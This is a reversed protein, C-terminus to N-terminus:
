KAIQFPYSNEKLPVLYISQTDNRLICRFGRGKVWFDFEVIISGPGLTYTTLAGNNINFSYPSNGYADSAVYGNLSAVGDPGQKLEVYFYRQQTSNLLWLQTIVERLVTGDASYRYYMTQHSPQGPVSINVMTTMLKDGGFLKMDVSTKVVPAYWEEHTSSINLWGDSNVTLTADKGEYGGGLEFIIGDITKGQMEKVQFAELVDGSSSLIKAFKGKKTQEVLFKGEGFAMQFLIRNPFQPNDKEVSLPSIELSDSQVTQETTTSVQVQDVAVVPQPQATPDGAVMAEQAGALPVAFFLQSVAFFCMVVVASSKRVQRLTLKM